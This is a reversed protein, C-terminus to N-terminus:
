RRAMRKLPHLRFYREASKVPISWEGDKKTAGKFRGRKALRAIHDATRHWRQAATDTTM